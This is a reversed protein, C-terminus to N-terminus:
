EGELEKVKNKILGYVAYKIAERSLVDQQEYVESILDEIAESINSMEEEIIYIAKM